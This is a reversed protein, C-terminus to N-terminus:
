MSSYTVKCCICDSKHQQRRPLFQNKVSAGDEADQGNLSNLREGEETLPSGYLVDAFKPIKFVGKMHM